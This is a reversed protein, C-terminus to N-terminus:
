RGMNPLQTRENGDNNRKIRNFLDKSLLIYPSAEDYEVNTSNRTNNIEKKIDIEIETNGSTVDANCQLTKQQEDKIQRHKRVRKASDSEGGILSPVDNM